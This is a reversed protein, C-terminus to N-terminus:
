TEGREIKDIQVFAAPRNVQFRGSETRYWESDKVRECRLVIYVLNQEFINGANYADLCSLCAGGPPWAAHNVGPARLYATYFEICSTPRGYGTHDIDKGCSM